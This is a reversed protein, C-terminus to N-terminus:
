EFMAFWLRRKGRFPLRGHSVAHNDLYVLDGHKLPLVVSNAEGADLINDIVDKELPADNDAYVCTTMPRDTLKFYARFLHTMLVGFVRPHLQFLHANNVWLKEGTWPHRRVPSIVTSLRLHGDDTWEVDFSKARCKREADGRDCTGLASQWTPTLAFLSCRKGLYRNLRTENILVRVFKLKRAELRERYEPKISLFIKRADGLLSEGGAKAPRDCYLILRSPIDTQYAM